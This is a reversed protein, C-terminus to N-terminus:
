PGLTDHCNGERSAQSGHDDDTLGEEMDQLSEKGAAFDSGSDPENIDLSPAGGFLDGMVANLSTPGHSTPGLFGFSPLYMARSQQFQSERSLNIEEIDEEEEEMRNEKMGQNRWSEIMYQEERRQYLNSSAKGLYKEGDEDTETSGDVDEEEEEEEDYDDDRSDSYKRQQHGSGNMRAQLEGGNLVSKEETRRESGTEVEDKEDTAGRLMEDNLAEGDRNSDAEPEGESGDSQNAGGPQGKVPHGRVSHGRVPHYQRKSRQTVPDSDWASTDDSEEEESTQLINDDQHFNKEMLREAMM